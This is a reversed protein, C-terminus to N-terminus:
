SKWLFDKKLVFHCFFFFVSFLSNMTFFLIYLSVSKFDLFFYARKQLPRHQKRNKSKRKSQKQARKRSKNKITLTLKVLLKSLKTINARQIMQYAAAHVYNLLLIELPVLIAWAWYAKLAKVHMCSRSYLSRFTTNPGRYDDHFLRVSLM